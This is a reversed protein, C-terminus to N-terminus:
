FTIQCLQLQLRLIVVNPTSGGAALHLHFNPAPTGLLSAIKVTKKEICESKLMSQQLNQMKLHSCFTHQHVGLAQVRPCMGGM